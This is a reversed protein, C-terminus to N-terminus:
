RAGTSKGSGPGHLVLGTVAAALIAALLIGIKSADILGADEFALETVFLAVTFGIGSAAAAALVQRSDMGKPLVGAGARVALWTIGSIGVVKGVVRGLVIGTAVRSSALTAFDRVVVGANALAFLPLVVGSTWPHIVHEFRAAAGAPTVFALMVGAITPQLGSQLMAIWLALGFLAYLGPSRVDARMFIRMSVLLAVVVLLPVPSIGGAYFLAIIVMSGVDDVIALSLLFVRTSPHVRRGMLALLGLAFAIDTAMPIGWGSSGASGANVALYIIGPVAMGGLAALVPLSAKRRGSLEGTTLERRIELGVAYFFFTMLGENIWEKITGPFELGLFTLKHHDNWLSFYSDGAPSNAWGIAILAAILLILASTVETTVFERLPDILRRSASADPEPQSSSHRV